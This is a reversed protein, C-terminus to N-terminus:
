TNIGPLILHLSCTDPNPQNPPAAPAAHCPPQPLPCHDSWPRRGEKRSPGNPGAYRAQLQASSPLKRPGCSLVLRVGNPTGEGPPAPSPAPPTRPLSGRDPLPPPSLLPYLPPPTLPFPLQPSRLGGRGRCRSTKAGLCKPGTAWFLLVLPRSFFAKFFPPPHDFLHAVSCNVM